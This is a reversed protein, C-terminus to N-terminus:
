GLANVGTRYTNEKNLQVILRYLTKGDVEGKAILNLGKLFELIERLLLVVETMDGGEGIIDKLKSLPAIVEPDTGVNRNDGVMALTPAYALGGKALKPILPPNEPMSFHWDQGFLDGIAGAVGGIADVIGKVVTYIGTWLMNIGDIILNIVGKIVGWITNWIGSFFNCIGQWAKNWDGSFVGTIFDILGGFTKIIGGIIDGIATFVTDFVGKVAALVNKITPGLTKVFWDVFPKLFNWVAKVCDVIKAVVAVVKVYVPKIAKDWLSKILDCVWQIVPQIWEKYVTLVTDGVSTILSQIAEMMPEGYQSWLKASTIWLDSWVGQLTTLIPMVGTVFVEDFITKVTEFLTTMVEATATWQDTLLPLVTTIMTNLSPFIVNDWLQGFVLNFTDGLGSAITGISKFATQLAPTLNNTFYNKFPEALTAMDSWAKSMNDKFGEIVPAFKKGIEAFIPAFNTDFYKKVNAFQKKLLAFGKKIQERIKNGIGEATKDGKSDLASLDSSSSDSEDKSAVNMEDFSALFRSNEKAKKGVAEVKKAAELSKKYTTGFLGSIFSAIAKTATALGSALTNLAPMIANVIPTFAVQLNGKIQKISNGFEENAGIADSMVSKIGRFAAYLGAMLFTSKLASKVSKGLGGITKGFGGASTKAKGLSKEASAGVKKVSKELNDVPKEARKFHSAFSSALKKVPAIVSNNVATGVTKLTNKVKSVPQIIKSAAKDATELVQEIKKCGSDLVATTKEVASQVKENSAAAETVATKVQLMKDILMAIVPLSQLNINNTSEPIKNVAEAAQRAAEALKKAEADAQMAKDIKAKTAESQQQLKLMSTEVANIKEIIANGKEGAMDKDSMAAMERNLQKWKEQALEIKENTLELSKNLRDIPESPIEFSGVDIEPIEEKEKSKKKDSKPQYNNVFDMAEKSYGPGFEYKNNIAKGLSEAEKEAEKVPEVLAKELTESAKEASESISSELTKGVEEAPKEVKQVAKEVSQTVTKEVAKGVEEVPKVAKDAAKSVSDTLAKEATEGVKDWQSQISKQLASLQKDLEADIILSLSITGVSAGNGDAM